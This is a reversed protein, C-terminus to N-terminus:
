RRARVRNREANVADTHSQDVGYQGSTGDGDLLVHDTKTVFVMDYNGLWRWDAGNRHFATRGGEFELRRHIAEADEKTAFRALLRVVTEFKARLIFEERDIFPVHVDYLPTM